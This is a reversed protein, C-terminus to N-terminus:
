PHASLSINWATQPFLATKRAPVPSLQCFSTVKGKFSLQFSIPLCTTFLPSNGGQSRAHASKHGQEPFTSLTVSLCKNQGTHALKLFHLRLLRFHCCVSFFEPPLHPSYFYPRFYHLNFPNHRKLADYGTFCGGSSGNPSKHYPM